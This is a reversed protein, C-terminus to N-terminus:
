SSTVRIDNLVKIIIQKRAHKIKEINAIDNINVWSVNSLEEADFTFNEYRRPAWAVYYRISFNGRDSAEDIHYDPVFTLENADIGTEERLERVAADEFSEKKELKGKPYSHYGAPTQVLITEITEGNRFLVIVGACVM